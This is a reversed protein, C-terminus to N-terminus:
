NRLRRKGQIKLENMLTTRMGPEMGAETELRVVSGGIRRKRLEQEIALMLDDAEDEEVSLDANRTIRFPYCDKVEMGSFLAAINHSIVQEMPVGAWHAAAPKNGEAAPMKPCLKTPLQVFRPLVKPVKVRAFHSEAADTEQIEVALNLSLNSIYPFPHGSDVALPTLVPFVQEKFYRDLYARQETNLDAYDLLYIGHDLLQPRLDNQFFQHAQKVMPRLRKSIDRLHESPTRGDPTRKNVEAEIQQKIVAVRVMFYEDLNSSFIALFKLREILPTRSDLAEHLVRRNFELWSLERSLYWRPNNLQIKEGTLTATAKTPTDEPKSDAKHSNSSDAKSDKKEKEKPDPKTELQRNSKSDNSAKSM